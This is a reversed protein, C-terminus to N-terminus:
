QTGYCNHECTRRMGEQSYAGHLVTLGVESYVGVSEGGTMEAQRHKATSCPLELGDRSSETGMGAGKEGLGAQM